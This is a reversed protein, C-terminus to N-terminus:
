TTTKEGETTAVKSVKDLFLKIPCNPKHGSSFQVGYCRLCVRVRRTDEKDIEHSEGPWELGKVIETAEEILTQKEQTVSDLASACEDLSAQRQDENMTNISDLRNILKYLIQERNTM